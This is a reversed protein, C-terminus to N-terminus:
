SNLSLELRVRLWIKLGTGSRNKFAKKLPAPNHALRSEIARAQFNPEGKICCYGSIGLGIDQFLECARNPMIILMDQDLSSSKTHTLPNLLFM